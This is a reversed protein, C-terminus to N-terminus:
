TEERMYPRVPRGSAARIAHRKAKARKWKAEVQCESSCYIARVDRSFYKQCNKCPRRM